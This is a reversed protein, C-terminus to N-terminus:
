AQLLATRIGWLEATNNNTIGLKLSFGRPWDGADTRALGGAGSIGPNGKSSEDTNITILPLPGPCWRIPISTYTHSSSTPVSSLFFFETAHSLSNERLIQHPIM